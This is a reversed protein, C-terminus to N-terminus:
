RANNRAKRKPQYAESAAIFDRSFREFLRVFKQRDGAPWQGLVQHIVENQAKWLKRAVSRGKLTIRLDVARRDHKDPVRRLLGAAELEQSKRTVSPAEVGLQHAVDQVGCAAATNHMLCHLIAASPRDLTIGTREVVSTWYQPRKMTQFFLRMANRLVELDAELESMASM